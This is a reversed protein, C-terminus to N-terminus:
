EYNLNKSYRKKQPNNYQLWLGSLLARHPLTRSFFIYGFYNSNSLPPM